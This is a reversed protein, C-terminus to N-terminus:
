KTSRNRILRRKSMKENTQAAKQKTKKNWRIGNEWQRDARRDMKMLSNGRGRVNQRSKPGATRDTVTATGKILSNLSSRNPFNLATQAPLKTPIILIAM